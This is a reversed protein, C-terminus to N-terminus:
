KGMFEVRVQDLTAADSAADIEAKAQNVIAELEM